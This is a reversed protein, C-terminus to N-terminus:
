KFCCRLEKCWMNLLCNENYQFRKFLWGNVCGIDTCMLLKNAFFHHLCHPFRHSPSVYLTLYICYTTSRTSKRKKYPHNPRGRIEINKFCLFFGTLNPSWWINFWGARAPSCCWNRISMVWKLMVKQSMTYNSFESARQKRRFKHAFLEFIWRAM